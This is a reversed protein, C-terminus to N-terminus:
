NMTDFEPGSIKQLEEKNPLWTKTEAEKVNSTKEIMEPAIAVVHQL